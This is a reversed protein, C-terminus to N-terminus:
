TRSARTPAPLPWKTSEFPSPHIRPSRRITNQWHSALQRHSTLGPRPPSSARCRAFAGLRHDTQATEMLSKIFERKCLRDPSGLAGRSCTPHELAHESIRPLPLYPRPQQARGRAELGQSCEQPLHAVL